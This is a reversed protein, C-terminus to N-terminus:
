SVAVAHGTRISEEAALCLMTSWLGDVGTCPPPTGNRVATAVAVVEDALELLEGAPKQLTEQQINDGLGCTLEYTSQDSRADAASWRAWITGETGVVKGTQHHGFAALTQSVVAYEDGAFDILATFNDYLDPRTDDRSNGRATVSVPEGASGMYWRALDFFHIPEELVWSGVRQKNYRWGESGQRYPFRSLEILTYQPRGIVGEDILGRVRGWLSSLRLEHGVALTRQKESALANLTHCQEVELAMPKELLIHKGAQLAAYAIEFHLRNPVVIDVIDIDDHSLVDRYDSLVAVGEHDNAAAQRSAASRASIAILELGDAQQILRAHHQGFLGYGILGYRIPKM